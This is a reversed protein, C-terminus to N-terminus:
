NSLETAIAYWQTANVTRHLVTLRHRSANVSAQSSAPQDSTSSAACSRSAGQSLQHTSQTRRTARDSNVAAARASTISTALQTLM